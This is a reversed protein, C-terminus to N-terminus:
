DVVNTNEKEYHKWASDHKMSIIERRQDHIMLMQYEILKLLDSIYEFVQPHTNDKHAYVQEQIEKNLCLYKLPHTEKKDNM